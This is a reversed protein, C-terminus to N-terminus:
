LAIDIFIVIALHKAYWSTCHFPRHEVHSGVHVLIHDRRKNKQTCGNVYCRYDEMLEGRTSLRGAYAQLWTKDLEVGPNLRRFDDARRRLDELEIGQHANLVPSQPHMIMPQLTKPTLVRDQGNIQRPACAHAYIDPVAPAPAQHIMLNFNPAISLMPIPAMDLIAAPRASLVPQSPLTQTSRFLM